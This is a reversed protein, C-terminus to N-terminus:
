RRGTTAQRTTSRPLRRLLIGIMDFDQTESTVSVIDDLSALPAQFVDMVAGAAAEAKSTARDICRSQNLDGIIRTFSFCTFFGIIALPGVIQVIQKPSLSIRRQKM